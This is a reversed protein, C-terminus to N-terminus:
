KERALYNITDHRRDRPTLFCLASSIPQRLEQNSPLLCLSSPFVRLGKTRYRRANSRGPIPTCRRDLETDLVRQCSKSERSVSSPPSTPRGTSTRCKDPLVHRHRALRSQESPRGKDGKAEPPRINALAIRLRGLNRRSFLNLDSPSARLRSSAFVFFLFPVSPSPPPLSSFSLFGYCCLTHPRRSVALVLWLPLQVPWAPWGDGLHYRAHYRQRGRACPRGYRTHSQPSPVPAPVQLGQL